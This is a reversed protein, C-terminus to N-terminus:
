KYSEEAQKSRFEGLEETMKALKTFPVEMPMGGFGFNQPAFM